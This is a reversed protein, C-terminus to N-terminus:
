AKDATMTAKYHDYNDIMNAAIAALDALGTQLPLYRYRFAALRPDSEHYLIDQAFNGWRWGEPMLDLTMGAHGSPLLMNSGHVGIVLRSEAYLRCLQRETEADFKDVRRDDIWDPFQTNRGLGAIAFSLDPLLQRMQQFLQQIKRNQLTLGLPMLKLKRLIGMTRSSCWLRDERWIFTVRGRNHDFDHRPVHTFKSIDFRSPHSHAPSVYVKSFQQLEQHIFSDLSPYFAQGQRLPIDVTWVQAVGDPVMWRLFKQVIVIIGLEPEDELYKQANLLKLLCHGYLYDICNLIVVAQCDDRFVEKTIKIDKTQPNKLSNLLPKALWEQSYDPKGFFQSKELDIQYPHTVGHGVPLDETFSKGCHSCHTKVCVHMGHWLLQKPQLLKGDYPCISHHQIVPKVEIM